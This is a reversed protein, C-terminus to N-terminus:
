NEKWKEKINYILKRIVRLIKDHVKNNELDILLKEHRTITHLSAGPSVRYARYGIVVGFHHYAFVSRRLRVGIGRGVLCALTTLGASFWSSGDAM